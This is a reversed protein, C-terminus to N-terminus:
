VAKLQGKEFFNAGEVHFLRRVAQPLHCPTQRINEFVKMFIDREESHIKSLEIVALKKKFM